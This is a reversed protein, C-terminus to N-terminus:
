YITNLNLFLVNPCYHVNLVNIEYLSSEIAQTYEVNQDEDYIDNLENLHNRKLM